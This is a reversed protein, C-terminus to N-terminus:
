GGVKMLLEKAQQEPTSQKIYRSTTANLNEGTTHGLLDRIIVTNVDREALMTSFSARLGHPTIDLDHKNFFKNLIRWASNKTRRGRESRLGGNKLVKEIIDIDKVLALSVVREKNGKTETLHVYPVGNDDYLLESVNIAESIRMGSYGMLSLLYKIDEPAQNYIKDLKEKTLIKTKANIIKPAIKGAAPNLGTRYGNYLQWEFFGRLSAVRRAVTASSLGSKNQKIVFMEIDSRTANELNGEYQEFDNEISKITNPALNRGYKLWEIYKKVQTM